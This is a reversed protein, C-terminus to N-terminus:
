KAEKPQRYDRGSIWIPQCMDILKSRARAGIKDLLESNLQGFLEDSLSTTIITPRRKAMRENLVQALTDHVWPSPRRGGLDDLIIVHPEIASEAVANRTQGPADDFESRANELLVQVDFFRCEIGRSILAAGIGVALHTKGVGAAGGLILGPPTCAPFMRLYARACQLLHKQPQTTAHFNELRKDSFADPIGSFASLSRSLKRDFCECREVASYGDKIVHKWGTDACVECDPEKFHIPQM